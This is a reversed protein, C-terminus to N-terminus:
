DELNKIIMEKKMKLLEKETIKFEIFLKTVCERCIGITDSLSYKIVGRDISKKCWKCLEM